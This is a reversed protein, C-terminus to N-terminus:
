FRVQDRQAFLGFLGGTHIFVIDDVGRYQGAKIEETLGHFAKGSYVPDLFLGETRALSKITNFVEPSAKAYGSGIHQDNVLIKLKDIDLKDVGLIHKYAMYWEHMDERVKTHFYEADDCVAIGLVDTNLEFLEAGLTLGAQTGGSGTASVIFSPSIKHQKFDQALERACGIYGWAGTGNSAGTPISFPSHGISKYHQQWQEFLKPVHQYEAIPYCSIEAGSLQDLFLNGSSDTNPIEGRLILHVKLGLQAGLIATARCHNSQLGGCTILTDAGEDLAKALVFELKRVKNGSIASGTMDDRKVWIRPGGLQESIRDLPQLPTPTQALIIRNPFEVM